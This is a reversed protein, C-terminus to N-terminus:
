LYSLGQTVIVSSCLSASRILNGFFSGMKCDCGETVAAVLGKQLLVSEEQWDFMDCPSHNIRYWCLEWIVRKM